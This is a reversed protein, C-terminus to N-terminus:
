AFRGHAIALNARRARLVPRSWLTARRVGHTLRPAGLTASYRAVVPPLQPASHRRPWARCVKPPRPSDRICM